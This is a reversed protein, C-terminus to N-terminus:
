RAIEFLGFHDREIKSLIRRAEDSDMQFGDFSKYFEDNAPESGETLTFLWSGRILYAYHNYGRRRSSRDVMEPKIGYFTDIEKITLTRNFAARYFEPKMVQFLVLSVTLISWGPYHVPISQRGPLLVLRMLIKEVDRLSIGVSAIALELHNTVHETLNQGIGMSKATSQFYKIQARSDRYGNVFEPLHMSFSVFRKLYDAANIGSGYRACVIHELANMNVGLVFHVKPVSFFHKIVELVALAYDPRCRDLEDIVVILPKGESEGESPETLKALSAKFRQMACKRSEERQWFADAAKEAEKSGSEIVADVIPGALETAGATAAALGIRLLPRGFKFALNKATKWNEREAISPLRDGIAGTLAILPDDFYDNEFADFYVTTAKGGNEVNHAGVWRKLFHSKGSGWPGDLAVVVPDEVRELLESLREGAPKRGLLDNNGFGEKYIQCDNQPPFLKM